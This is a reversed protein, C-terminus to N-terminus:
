ALLALLHVAHDYTGLEAANVLFTRAVNPGLGSWFGAIGDRRLVQRCVALLTVYDAAAQAQTKWVEVPNFVSISIAGASGGSVVVRASGLDPRDSKSVNESVFKSLGADAAATVAADAAEVRGAAGIAAGAVLEAAGAAGSGLSGAM